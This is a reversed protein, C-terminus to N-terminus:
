PSPALAPLGDTKQLNVPHLRHDPLSFSRGSATQLKQSVSKTPTSPGPPPFNASENSNDVAMANSHGFSSGLLYM